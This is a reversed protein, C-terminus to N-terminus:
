RHCPEWISRAAVPYRAARWFMTRLRSPRLHPGQSHGFPLIMATPTPLAAALLLFLYGQSSYALRSGVRASRPVKQGLCSGVDKTPYPSLLCRAQIPNDKFFIKKSRRLSLVMLASRCGLLKQCNKAQRMESVRPAGCAVARLLGRGCSPCHRLAGALRPQPGGSAGTGHSANACGLRSRVGIRRGSRRRDVFWVHPCAIGRAPGLETRVVLRLAASCDAGCLRRRFRLRPCPPEAFGLRRGLNAGVGVGSPERRRGGTIRRDRKM